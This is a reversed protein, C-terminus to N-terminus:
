VAPLVNVTEPAAPPGYKATPADFLAPRKVHPVTVAPDAPVFVQPDEVEPVKAELLLVTVNAVFRAAAIAAQGAAAPTVAVEVPETTMRVARVTPVVPFLMASPVVIGEKWHDPPAM